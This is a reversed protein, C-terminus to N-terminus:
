WYTVVKDLSRRTTRRSSPAAPHGIPILAVPRLHGPLALVRAAAAEDFAGVWCSGLGLATAALLIHETLAATDQLCYLSSGRQGYREASRAPDCCVAIVVPAQALFGQGYAARVLGQRLAQDRVVVLHWPQRNGASPSAVAAELIRRVQKPSVDVNPDYRRVSHRQHVLQWFDM